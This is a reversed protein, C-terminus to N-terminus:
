SVGRRFVTLLPGCVVGFVAFLMVLLLWGVLAWPILVLM